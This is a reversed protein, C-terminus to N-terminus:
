RDARATTGPERPAASFGARAGAIGLILGTVVAAVLVARISM